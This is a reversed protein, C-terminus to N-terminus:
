LDPPKLAPVMVSKDHAAPTVLGYQCQDGVVTQVFPSRRIAEIDDERWSMATAPHEHLFWKNKKMQMRYISCVFSLHLRGEHLMERVKERDMKKFNIGHNWISFATCPPAGIIWDPDQREIMERALKRDARKCFNWAEGNPKLTRLDLAGLGEVNLNRRNADAHDSISRGYLEMFTAPSSVSCISHVFEAAKDPRVGAVTLADIMDSETPGAADAMDADGSDFFLDAVDMENEESDRPTSNNEDNIVVQVAEDALLSEADQGDHGIHNEGDSATHPLSDEFLTAHPDAKPTSPAGEADVNDKHFSKDTPDDFLHSVAKWKPHDNDKYALYIRMRCDQNHM